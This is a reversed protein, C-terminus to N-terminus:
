IIIVSFAQDQATNNLYNVSYIDCAGAIRSYAGEYIFGPATTAIERNFAVLIASALTISSSSLRYTGLATRVATINGSSSAVTGNARVYIWAKIPSIPANQKIWDPSVARGTSTTDSLPALALLGIQNIGGNPAM